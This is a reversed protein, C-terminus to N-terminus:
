LVLSIQLYYLLLLNKDEPTVFSLTFVGSLGSPARKISDLAVGVDAPPLEFEVLGVVAVMELLVVVSRYAEVLPM